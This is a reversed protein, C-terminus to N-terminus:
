PKCDACAKYRNQLAQERDPFDIRKRVRAIKPCDPRHFLRAGVEGVYKGSLAPIKAASTKAPQIVPPLGHGTAPRATPLRAGGLTQGARGPLSPPVTAQDQPAYPQLPLSRGSQHKHQIYTVVAGAVFFLLLAVGCGLFGTTLVRKM